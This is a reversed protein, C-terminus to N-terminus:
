YVRTSEEATTPAPIGDSTRVFKVRADGVKAGKAVVSYEFAQRPALRQFAPFTVKQGNVVGGNSASVPTIEAPFEVVVKVNTDDATGQNTVKVTYTTNEGVQIPDPNDAKELLLASVGITRTECSTSVEKACAGKASANFRYVGAATATFTACFDTSGKAPVSGLDWVVNTGSVRGGATASTFTAGSPIPMTVQTGAAPADGSNSVSFCVEFPRGLYQQERAKCTIALVAQRVATSATAKGKVGQDSTAEASNVFKGARSATANFKFEKSEGAALTGADFVVSTRGESTLGDPLSDTVKVGTLKSSGTNKVVLRVPVPDCIIVEAPQTKALEIAPNVVLTEGCTRPDASVVACNIIKGEKEAKFWVKANITQGAEMDGIRWILQDGEVKAEPQSRVYSAGAPLRDTVLVNGACSQAVISLDAAFESGLSVERPMTKTLRVLGGTPDTCASKVERVPAPAPTLVPAPQEKLPTPKPKQQQQQQQQQSSGVRRERSENRSGQQQQQQTTCGTWSVILACSLASGFAFRKYGTVLSNIAKCNLISPQSRM